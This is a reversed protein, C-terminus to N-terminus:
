RPAGAHLIGALSLVRLELFVAYVVHELLGVFKRSHPNSNGL